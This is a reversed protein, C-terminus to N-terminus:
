KKLVLLQNIIEIMEEQPFSKLNHKARPFSILKAFNDNELHNKIAISQSSPIKDDCEGTVITFKKNRCRITEVWVDEECQIGRKELVMRRDFFSNICICHMFNFTKALFLSAVAGISWGLIISNSDKIEKQMQKINEAFLITRDYKLYFLAQYTLHPKLYNDFDKFVADIGSVVYLNYGVM